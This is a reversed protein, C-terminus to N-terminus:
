SAIVYIAARHRHLKTIEVKCSSVFVSRFFERSVPMLKDNSQLDM